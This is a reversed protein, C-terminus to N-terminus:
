TTQFFTLVLGGVALAITAITIVAANRPSLHRWVAPESRSRQRAVMLAVAWAIAGIAICALAVLQDAARLPWLRRLLLAVCVAAALGSRIWALDTREAALGRDGVPRDPDSETM